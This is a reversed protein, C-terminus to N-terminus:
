DFVRGPQEEWPLSAVFCLDYISITSPERRVVLREVVDPALWALRILRSACRDSLGEDAALDALTAVDGREM